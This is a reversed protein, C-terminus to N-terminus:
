RLLDALAAGIEPFRFRYGLALAKRPLVRQSALVVDAVEGLALRIAAEPAPLFAPRRLARGVARALDRNRVPEPATADLPGECRADELALLLLGVEDALHIWPQWFEGKGLPGGAFLRFPAVLKPLAGGEPSLVIGTRVLVVRARERAPAAADEWARSVDALFGTGPASSEDLIEDGRSGYIGVASGSVLVAPGGARVVAAVRETSRVRSERIRRKKEETWRGEAVPEGALHLCADSRALAEEWPGPAAPDGTVHRVGTPLRAAGAPSRSLATVAYGKELLAGAVARGILGTAGTLFVHM